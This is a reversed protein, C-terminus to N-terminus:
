CSKRQGRGMQLKKKTKQLFDFPHSGSSLMTLWTFALHELGGAHTSLVMIDLDCYATNANCCPEMTFSNGSKKLSFPHM